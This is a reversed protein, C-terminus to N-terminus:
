KYEILRSKRGMLRAVYYQLVGLAEPFKGLTTFFAWNLNKRAALRLIQLPYLLLLALAWPTVFLSSLLTYLPLALGWLL